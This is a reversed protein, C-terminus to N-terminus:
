MIRGSAPLHRMSKAKSSRMLPPVSSLYFLGGNIFSVEIRPEYQWALEDKRRQREEDPTSKKWEVQNIEERPTTQIGNARLFDLIRGGSARYEDFSIPQEVSATGAPDPETQQAEQGLSSQAVPQEAEDETEDANTQEDQPERRALEEYYAELIAMEERLRTRAEEAWQQDEQGLTHEVELQVMQLAEQITVKRDLTYYYDPITPTLSLSFLFSTFDAVMRPQHLNIGLYLLIDRRKDCLLSVKLNMGLWPVLPTSRRKGANGLLGGQQEYMCVFSGHKKTSAFIQQMRAAGLHLHESRLGEPMCDPHFTFTLVLPQYALNMKDVWSWYFPRNGIDKDVEVPLKVTFYDPHSEVIHASFTALYREVFQRVQQQQM